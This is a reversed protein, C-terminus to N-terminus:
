GAGPAHFAGAEHALAPQREDTAPLLWLQRAGAGQRPVHGHRGAQDSRGAHGGDQPYLAIGISCQISFGMGDLTFPRLMDDLIRRWAREAVTANGGHLYIVFEDGGLRCLMDTQRLCTQLREAVLQLVRDGFPHGLSDNIIKFRDLDLFL